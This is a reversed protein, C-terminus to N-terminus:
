HTVQPNLKKFLVLGTTAISAITFSSCTDFEWCADTLAPKKTPAIDNVGVAFLVTKIIGIDSRIYNDAKQLCMRWGGNETITPTRQINMATMRGEGVVLLSAATASRAAKHALDRENHRHLGTTARYNHGWHSSNGSKHGRGSSKGSLQRSGM